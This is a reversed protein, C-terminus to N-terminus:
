VLNTFIIKLNKREEFYYPCAFASCGVFVILAHFAAKIRVAAAM